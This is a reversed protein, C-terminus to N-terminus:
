GYFLKKILLKQRKIILFKITQDKQSEWQFQIQRSCFYSCLKSIRKPNFWTKNYWRCQSPLKYCWLQHELNESPAIQFDYKSVRQMKFHSQRNDKEQHPILSSHYIINDELHSKKLLQFVIVALFNTRLKEYVNNIQCTKMLNIDKMQNLESMNTLVHLRWFTCFLKALKRIWERIWFRNFM